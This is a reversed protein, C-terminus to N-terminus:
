PEKREEADSQEAGDSADEQSDDEGYDQYKLIKIINILETSFALLTIIVFILFGYWTTFLNYIWGLLPVVCVLKGLIQSQEIEPDAPAGEKIGATALRYVGDDESLTPESVVKHTIIKGAYSGREGHYSIIDGVKIQEIDAKKILIIDGVMLEPEMSDSSIRLLSIGFIEPTKGAIRSVLTIILAVLLVAVLVSGLVLRIRSFIKKWDM